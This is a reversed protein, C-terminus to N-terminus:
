VATRFRNTSERPALVPRGLQSSGLTLHVRLFSPGEQEALSRVLTALEHRESVEQASRYGCAQAIAVLDVTQSGTPQGGTSDHAGNDLVIHLLNTPALRGITTMAELRMLAAGDGDLVAVRHPAGLAVGLGISSACGMSGVVYLNRARDHDRELERSTKGTTSVLVSDEGVAGVIIDIAEERRMAGPRLPAAAPEASADGSSIAGRPVLIAYPLSTHDSRAVAAGVQQEFLAEETAIVVHEVQLASLVRETVSGMLRHQPEDHRGPDGRWGVILLTPIGLTHCLSTLPNVANGLGSNQLFVCPRAGTLQLGAAIAVAEGENAAATYQDPHHNALFTLLPELLSCPVGIFPGLGHDLLVHAVVEAPLGPM